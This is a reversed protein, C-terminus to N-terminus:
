QRRDKPRQIFKNFRSDRDGEQLLLALENDDFIRFFEDWSIETLEEDKRGFDLRLIGGPGDTEVKAPRGGHQEAWRRIEEHDTVPEASSM